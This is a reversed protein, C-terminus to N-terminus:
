PRGKRTPKTFRRLPINLLRHPLRMRGGGLVLISRGGMKPRSQSGRPSFLVQALIRAVLIAGAEEVPALPHPPPRHRQPPHLFMTRARIHTFTPLLPRLYPVPHSPPRYGQIFNIPHTERSRLSLSWAHALFRSMMVMQGIRMIKVHLYHSGFRRARSWVNSYFKLLPDCKQDFRGVSNWHEGCAMRSGCQKQGKRDGRVNVM